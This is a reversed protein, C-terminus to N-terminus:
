LEKIRSSAWCKHLSDGEIVQTTDIAVKYTEPKNTKTNLCDLFVLSPIASSDPFRAFLTFSEGAYLNPVYGATPSQEAEGNDWRIQWKSLAPM